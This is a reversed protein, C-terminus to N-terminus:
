RVATPLLEASLRMPGSSLRFRSSQHRSRVRTQLYQDHLCLHTARATQSYNIQAQIDGGRAVVDNIADVQCDLLTSHETQDTLRTRSLCSNTECNQTMRPASDFNRVTLNKTTVSFNQTKVIFRFAFNAASKNRIHRLIRCRRQVGSQADAQLQYLHELGVIKTTRM